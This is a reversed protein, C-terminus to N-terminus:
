LDGSHAIRSKATTNATVILPQQDVSCASDSISGAATRLAVHVENPAM